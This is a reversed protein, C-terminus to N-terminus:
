RCFIDDRPGKEDRCFMAVTADAGSSSNYVIELVVDKGPAIWGIPSSWRNNVKLFPVVEYACRNIYQHLIVVQPGSIEYRTNAFGVEMCSAAAGTKHEVPLLNFKKCTSGEAKCIEEMGNIASPAKELGFTLASQAFAFGFPFLLCALAPIAISLRM